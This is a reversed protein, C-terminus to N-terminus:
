KEQKIIIERLASLIGFCVSGLLFFLAIKYLQTSYPPPSLSLIFIMFSIIALNKALDRFSSYEIYIDYVIYLLLSVTATQLSISGLLYGTALFAMSVLLLIINRFFPINTDSKLSTSM